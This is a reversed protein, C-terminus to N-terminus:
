QHLSGAVAMNSYELYHLLMFQLYIMVFYLGNYKFNSKVSDARPRNLRTSASDTQTQRDWQVYNGIVWARKSHYDKTLFSIKFSM